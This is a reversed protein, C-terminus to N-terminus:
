TEAREVPNGRCKTGRLSTALSIAVDPMRGGRLSTNHSPTFIEQLIAEKKTYYLTGFLSFSFAWSKARESLMQYREDKEFLEQKRLLKEDRTIKRYHLIRHTGYVLLGLGFAFIFRNEFQNLVDAIILILGLVIYSVAIYLRQKLKQKFEM